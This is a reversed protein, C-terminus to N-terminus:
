DSQNGVISRNAGKRWSIEVDMDCQGTLISAQYRWEMEPNALKM